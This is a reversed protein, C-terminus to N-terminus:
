LNKLADTFGRLADAQKKNEADKKAQELKDLQAQNTLQQSAGQLDIAMINEKLNSNATCTLRM